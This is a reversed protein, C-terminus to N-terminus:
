IHLYIGFGTQQNQYYQPSQQWGPTYNGASYYSNNNAGYPYNSAVYPHTNQGYYGANPLAHRRHGTIAQYADALNAVAGTWQFAQASASDGTNWGANNVPIFASQQQVRAVQQQQLYRQQAAYQYQDWTTQGPQQYQQRAAYQYQDWTTQGPQQYQPRAAYQYQDWTTQVPQTQPIYGRYDYNRANTTPARYDAPGGPTNVNAGYCSIKNGNIYDGGGTNVTLYTDGGRENSGNWVQVPRQGVPALQDPPQQYVEDHLRNAARNGGRQAPAVQTDGDGAWRYPDPNAQQQQGDQRQQAPRPEEDFNSRGWWPNEGSQKDNRGGSNDMGGM